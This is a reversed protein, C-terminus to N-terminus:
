VWISQKLNGFDNLEDFTALKFIVDIGDLCM